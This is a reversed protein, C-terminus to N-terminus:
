KVLIADGFERKLKRIDARIDESKVTVVIKHFNGDKIIESNYGKEKAMNAVRLANTETRFAGIQVKFVEGQQQDPKTQAKDEKKAQPKAEIAKQKMEPKEGVDSKAAEPKADQSKTEKLEPKQAEAPQTEQAPKQEKPENKIVVELESTQQQAKSSEWRQVGLYLVVIAGFVLAIAILKDKKM